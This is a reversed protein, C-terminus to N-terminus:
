DNYGCLAGLFNAEVRINEETGNIIPLLDKKEGSVIICDKGQKTIETIIKVCSSFYDAYHTGYYKGNKHIYVGYVKM